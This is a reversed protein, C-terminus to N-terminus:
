RVSSSTRRRAPPSSRGMSASTTGGEPSGAPLPLQVPLKQVKLTLGEVAVVEVQDGEALPESGSEASWLESQVWVAAKCGDVSRVTGTAHVLAEAGTCVPMRMARLALAYIVASLAVVVGYLPASVGLPLLWLVPLALLPLFLILHCM